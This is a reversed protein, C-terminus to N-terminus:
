AGTAVTAVGVGPTVEPFDIVTGAVHNLYNTFINVAVNAVTEVIEADTLGAARAAALTRDDIEGRREVIARALALVAQTKPSAATAARADAIDDATLGAKAGLYAHASLCYGCRNAEAVALAIQERVKAPLVGSALAGTLDLYGQLAPPAAALVRFLNPVAGLQTQIRDLLSKTKGTAHTPDLLAIRNM